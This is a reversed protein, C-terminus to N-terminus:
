AVLHRRKELEVEEAMRRAQNLNKHELAQLRVETLQEIQAKQSKIRKKSAMEQRELLRVRNQLMEVQNETQKRMQRQKLM